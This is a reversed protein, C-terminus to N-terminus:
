ARAEGIVEAISRGTRRCEHDPDTHGADDVLILPAHAAALSEPQLVGRQRAQHPLRQRRLGSLHGSERSVKLYPDILICATAGPGLALPTRGSPVAEIQRDTRPDGGGDQQAAGRHETLAPGTLDTPDQNGIRVPAPLPGAQLIDGGHAGHHPAM